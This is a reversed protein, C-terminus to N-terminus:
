RRAEGFPALLPPRPMLSFRGSRRKPGEVPVGCCNKFIDTINERSETIDRALVAIQAMDSSVHLDFEARRVMNDRYKVIDTLEQRVETALATRDQRELALGHELELLGRTTIGYAILAAAAATALPGLLASALARYWPERM